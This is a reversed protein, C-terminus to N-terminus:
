YTLYLTSIILSSCLLMLSYFEVFGPTFIFMLIILYWSVHRLPLTVGPPLLGFNEGVMALVTLEERSRYLGSGISFTIGSTLKNNSHDAGCLLTYFSVIKRAWNVVSNWDKCILPPLDSTNAVAYGYVLCKELWRFLNPPNRPPLWASQYRFIRRLELFIGSIIIWTTWKM